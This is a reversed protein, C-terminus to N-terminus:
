AGDLENARKYYGVAADRDGMQEYAFGIARHVKAEEPRLELAKTFWEIALGYQALADYVVGLRYVVNFNDPKAAVAANLLPLAKAYEETQAYAIGLVMAVRGDAGNTAAHAEQLLEIGDERLGTKIYSIGLHLMIEIDGPFNANIPGLLAVAQDYNGSKAHKLGRDRYIINRTVDDVSFLSQFGDIMNNAIRKGVIAAYQAYLGLADSFDPKRTM